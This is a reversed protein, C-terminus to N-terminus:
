DKTEEVQLLYAVMLKLADNVLAENVNSLNDRGSHILHSQSIFWNTPCEGDLLFPAFDSGPYPFNKGEIEIDFSQAIAAIQANFTSDMGLRRIPYIGKVYSLPPREGIMDISIVHLKKDIARNIYYFTSGILGSEEAGFFGFTFKYGPIKHNKM